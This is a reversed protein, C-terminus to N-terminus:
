SEQHPFMTILLGGRPPSKKRDVERDGGEIAKELEVEEVARERERESASGRELRRSCEREIAQAHV